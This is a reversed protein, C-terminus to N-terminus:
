IWHLLCRGILMYCCCNEPLTHMCAHLFQKGKFSLDMKLRSQTFLNWNCNMEDSLSRIFISVFPCAPRIKDNRSPMKNTIVDIVPWSSSFLPSTWLQSFSVQAKEREFDMCIFSCESGQKDCKHKKIVNDFLWYLYFLCLSITRSMFFANKGNWHPPQINLVEM